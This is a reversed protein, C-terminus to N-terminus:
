FEFLQMMASFCFEYLIELMNGILWKPIWNVKFKAYGPHFSLPDLSVPFFQQLFVIYKEFAKIKTFVKGFITLLENEM